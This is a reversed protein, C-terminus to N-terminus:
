KLKWAHKVNPDELSTLPSERMTISVRRDSLLDKNSIAHSFDYRSTSTLVQLCRRRLLVKQQHVALNRHKAQNRFTMYCEGALSLNAIPEKSLKRDDVHEQLWHGQQRRYDISNAENPICGQMEKVLKLKRVISEIVEPLPNIPADVRRDLLNVHVGWRKDIHRNQRSPKWPVKDKVDLFFLILKEEEVTIFNEFLFLGPIPQDSYALFEDTSDKSAETKSDISSLKSVPGNCSSAHKELRITSFSSGCMPCEKFKSTRPRKGVPLLGQFFRLKRKPPM